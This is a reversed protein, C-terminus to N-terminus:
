SRAAGYPLAPEESLLEGAALEERYLVAGACCFHELEVKEDCNGIWVQWIFGKFNKWPTKKSGPHACCRNQSCGAISGRPLLWTTGLHVLRVPWIWLTGLTLVRSRLAWPCGSAAM